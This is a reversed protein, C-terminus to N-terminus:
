HYIGISCGIQYRNLDSNASRYNCFASVVWNRTLKEITIPLQYTLRLSGAFYDKNLIEMDPLLVAKAYDTTADALTLDAKTSFNYGAKAEIWLKKSISLGGEFQALTNAYKLESTNLM